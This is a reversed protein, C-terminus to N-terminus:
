GDITEDGKAGRLFILISPMKSELDSINNVRPAYKQTSAKGLLDIINCVPSDGYKKVLRSAAFRDYKTTKTTGFTDVFKQVVNDIESNGFGLVLLGEAQLVELVMEATPKDRVVKMILDIIYEKRM